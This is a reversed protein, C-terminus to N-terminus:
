AVNQTPMYALIFKKFFYKQLVFLMLFSWFRLNELFKKANERFYRINADFIFYFSSHLVFDLFFAFGVEGGEAFVLGYGDVVFGDLAFLEDLFNGSAHVDVFAGDVTDDHCEGFDDVAVQAVAVADTQWVPAHHFELYFARFHVIGFGEAGLLVDATYADVEEGFAVFAGLFEVFSDGELFFLLLCLWM